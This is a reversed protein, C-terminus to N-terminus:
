VWKVSLYIKTYLAPVRLLSDGPAKSLKALTLYAVTSEAAHPACGLLIVGFSAELCSVFSGPMMVQNRMCSFMLYVAM